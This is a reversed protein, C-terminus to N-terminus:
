GHSWRGSGNSFKKVVGIAENFQEGNM